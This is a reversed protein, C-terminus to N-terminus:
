KFGHIRINDLLNFTALVTSSNERFGLQEKVLIYKNLHSLLRKYLVKELIKSFTKLLSIPRYNSM